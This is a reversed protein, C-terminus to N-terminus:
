EEMMEQEIQAEAAQEAQDRVAKPVIRHLNNSGECIWSAEFEYRKERAEKHALCVMRAVKPFAQEVTLNM